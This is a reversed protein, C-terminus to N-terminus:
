ELFGASPDPFLLEDEGVLAGQKAGGRFSFQQGLAEVVLFEQMFPGDDTVEGFAQEPKRVGVGGVDLLPFDILDVFDEM